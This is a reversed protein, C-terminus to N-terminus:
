PNPPKPPRKWGSKKDFAKTSCTPCFHVKHGAKVHALLKYAQRPQKKIIDSMQQSIAKSDSTKFDDTDKGYQHCSPCEITAVSHEHPIGSKMIENIAKKLNPKM